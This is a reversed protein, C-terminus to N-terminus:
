PVFKALYPKPQTEIKRNNLKLYIDPLIQKMWENSDVIFGPDKTDLLPSYIKVEKQSVKKILEYWSLHIYGCVFDPQFDIIM